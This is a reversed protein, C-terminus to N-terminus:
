ANPAVQWPDPGPDAGTSATALRPLYHEWGARHFAAAAAPLRRHALRVITDEGDPTLTVEVVTSQPPMAFLETEFGWTFVVRTCPKVEVFEGLITHVGYPGLPSARGAGYAASLFDVVADPPRFVIRCVGGPRPDLTAHAGMWEVMKLPDTFFAFVTEPRAVVRIEHEVVSTETPRAPM